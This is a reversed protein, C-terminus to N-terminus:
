SDPKGDAGGQRFGCVTGNFAPEATVPENFILGAATAKSYDYPVGDVFTVDNFNSGCIRSRLGNLRLMPSLRLVSKQAPNKTTSLNLGLRTLRMKNKYCSCASPLLAQGQTAHATRKRIDRNPESVLRQKAM